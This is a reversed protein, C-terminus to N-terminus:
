TDLVTYRIFIGTLSTKVPGSWSLEFIIDRALGIRQWSLHRRYQGTEGLSESRPYTWSAGKTKSTRLSVLNADLSQQPEIVSLNSISMANTARNFTSVVGANGTAAVGTLALDLGTSLSGAQGSGSVGTLPINIRQIGSTVTIIGAAGIGAVGVLTLLPTIQAILTGAQGTGSVGVLSVGEVSLATITGAQGSGQVGTLSVNSDIEFALTGVQGSAAVGSLNASPNATLSGPQGTGAVGSLSTFLSVSITGANGTASVGILSVSITGALTSFPASALPYFGFM